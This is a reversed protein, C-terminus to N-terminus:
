EHSQEKGDIVRWAEEPSIDALKRYQNGEVLEDFKCVPKYLCFQCATMMNYRYPEIGVKGSLIEEGVGMYVKELYSRLNNFQEGDFVSSSSYFSGDKKLGVPLIDSFGGETKGDMMKIVQPDALLFGKMKLRSFVAKEIEEQEMPGDGSILPEKVTFYLIGAPLGPKGFLASYHNLSIHLYTLLQLKLGYLIEQIKIKQDSSKYDLVRLYFNDQEQVLDLRDIRGTLEMSQQGPLQIKLPAIDGNPGFAIELGVPKFRSRKAHESLVVAARTVSRKLKGTIYKYRSSSLLIESQLQPALQDVIEGMMHTCSLRDMEGWEIGKQELGEAFQKLAAHFFEGMDPAALTHTKREKLKLGYSTFHAFPCAKFKEIRSVSTRLPNGFLRASIKAPIRREHNVHFIGQSIMRIRDDYGQDLFWNYLEWWIDSIKLGQKLERIRAALYGLSREKSVIFEASSEGRVPDPDGQVTKEELEPFLTKVRSIISSSGLSRGEDDALAYSLWLGESARTLATYIYFQEEFARKRSGPGMEIGIDLLKEKESDNFIGQQSVRAPFLGENVGLVFLAKVDPNRSRDLSGIVVQDLGPPVLGITMSELGAGLVVSFEEPSLSEEGLAEVLEDLLQATENWVQEHARAQELHGAAEAERTWQDLKEPVGLEELLNFLAQCIGRVNAAEELRQGMLELASVALRRGQNLEALLQQEQEEIEAQDEGLTYRRRYNWDEKELWKQGRIGHALVYNELQFVQEREIPVLDTKLYRFLPQYSWDSSITELASRILEVLPHHLMDRKRDMFFPIGYDQFVGSISEWYLGADRLLLAMDRWKYGHDRALSIMQRACAEVEARRNAAATINLRAPKGKFEPAPYSFFHQELHAAEPIDKFRSAASFQIMTPSEVIINSQLALQRIKRCTEWPGYFVNEHPLSDAEYYEPELCLSVHVQEAHQLLSRIVGFEQPTFGKFSDIWLTAGKLYDSSCIKQALLTLYDDPDTYREALYDELEAYLLSLDGLKDKLLESAGDLAERAKILDSPGVLYTKFEGISRALSDAMGPRDASKGFVRLDRKYRELIGRLVMRKGTEGIPIRAAGGTELLVRHALRRFSLVQARVSGPLGLQTALAYELQFTAQEPVLIIIPPGDPQTELAQKVNELIYHTKGAGARGLIFGLGM